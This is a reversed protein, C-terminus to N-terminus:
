NNNYKKHEKEGVQYYNLKDSIVCIENIRVYGEFKGTLPEYDLEANKKDKAYLKGDILYIIPNKKFGRGYGVQYYGKSIKIRNSNEM